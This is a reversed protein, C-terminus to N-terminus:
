LGVHCLICLSNFYVTQLQFMKQHASDKLFYSSRIPLMFLKAFSIYLPVPQQHKQEKPEQIFSM